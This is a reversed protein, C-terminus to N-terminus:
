RLAPVGAVWQHLYLAFAGYAVVGLVIAVCTGAVTGAPAPGVERRRLHRFLVVSWVLFAGFFVIDGLRGNSLLHAFAWVKVSLVMPHGLAARVHNAPTYAAVLLVFAPVMLLATVHYLWAPPLWVFVPDARQLGFGRIAAALGAASVLSFAIKWPVEGMARIRAARWEPAHMLLSHAGLFTVLGLVMVLM